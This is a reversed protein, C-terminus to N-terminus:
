IDENSGSGSGRDWFLTTIGGSYRDEFNMPSFLPRFYPGFRLSDMGVFGIDFIKYIYYTM